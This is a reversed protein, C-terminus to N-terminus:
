GGGGKGRNMPTPENTGTISEKDVGLFGLYVFDGLHGTLMVFWVCKRGGEGLKGTSSRKPEMM